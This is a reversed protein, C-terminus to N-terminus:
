ICNVQLCAFEIYHVILAIDKNRHMVIIKGHIKYVTSGWNLRDPKVFQIKLISKKVLLGLIHPLSALQSFFKFEERDKVNIFGHM